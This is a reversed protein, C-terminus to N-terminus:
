APTVYGTQPSHHIESVALKFVFCLLLRLRVRCSRIVSVQKLFVWTGSIEEIGKRKYYEVLDTLSDFM